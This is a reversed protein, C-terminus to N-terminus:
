YVIYSYFISYGTNIFIDFDNDSLKKFNLWGKLFCLYSLYFHLYQSLKDDDNQVTKLSNENSISSQDKVSVYYMWSINCIFIFCHTFVHYKSTRIPYRDKSSIPWRPLFQDGWKFYAWVLGMMSKQYKLQALKWKSVYINARSFIYIFFDNLMKVKLHEM